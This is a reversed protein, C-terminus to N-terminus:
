RSLYYVVTAVAVAIGTMTIIAAAPENNRFNTCLGSTGIATACTGDTAVLYIGIGTTGLGLASGAIAPWLPLRDGEVVPPQPRDILAGVQIVSGDPHVIAVRPVGIRRGIAQAMRVEDRHQAEANEFELAPQAGPETLLAADLAPDIAMRASERAGLAIAHRRQRGSGCRAYVVHDGPPVLRLVVKTAAEPGALAAIGGLNGDIYVECGSRGLEVEITGGDREVMETKLARVLAIMDPPYQLDTPEWNPLARVVDSLMARSRPENHQVRFLAIGLLMRMEVFLQRARGADPGESDVDVWGRLIDGARQLKEMAEAFRSNFYASRAQRALVEMERMQEATPPRPTRSVRDEVLTRLAEGEVRDAAPVPIEIELALGAGPRTAEVTGTVRSVIVATREASARGAVSTALLAITIASRRM